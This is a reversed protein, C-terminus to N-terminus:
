ARSAQYYLRDLHTNCHRIDTWGTVALLGELAKKNPAFWNTPDEALESNPFFWFKPRSDMDFGLCRRRVWVRVDTRYYTKLFLRGGPRTVSALRDLALIPNRLHYLVNVLLVDDFLGDVEPDLQEIGRAVYDAKSGLVRAAVRFGNGNGALSSEDDIAVVDAGRRECEFSFGGDSAGVDLLRRGTLDAPIGLRSIEPRVDDRGPTWLGPLVEIRHRWFSLSALERRAEEHTLHDPEKMAEIATRPDTAPTTQHRATRVTEASM